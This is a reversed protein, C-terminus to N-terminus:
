AAKLFDLVIRTFDEPAELNAMHAVGPIEAYKAGPTMSAFERMQEPHPGDLEGVLYLTPCRIEGVRRKYDLKQLSRSAGVYGPASTGEIIRRAREVLEPRDNRTKETFWIPLTAEAVAAIGSDTLRKQRDAWMDVFFQPADLRCDAAVLKEVRDPHTLTLGVSTMGGLSIGLLRSREVGLADWVAAVDAVLDDLSNAPNEATSKGHGRADLKLLRFEKGLAPAHDDFITNNGALTHLCTLWPKGETGEEVAHLTNGNAKIRHEKSMDVKL